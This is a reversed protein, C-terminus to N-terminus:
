VKNRLRNVDRKVFPLIEEALLFVETVFLGVKGNENKIFNEKANHIATTIETPMSTFDFGGNIKANVYEKFSAYQEVDAVQPREPYIHYYEWIEFCPNSQAVHWAEYPKWDINDNKFRNIQGLCFDRLVDIKGQVEWEDTDIV